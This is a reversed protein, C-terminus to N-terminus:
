LSFHTKALGFGLFYLFIFYKRKRAYPQFNNSCKKEPSSKFYKPM